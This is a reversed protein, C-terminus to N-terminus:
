NYIAGCGQFVYSQWDCATHMILAKLGQGQLVTYELCCEIGHKIYLLGYVGSEGHWFVLRGAQEIFSLFVSEMYGYSTHYTPRLSGMAMVVDMMVSAQSALSHLTALHVQEM